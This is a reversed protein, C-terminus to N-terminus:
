HNKVSQSILHDDIWTKLNNIIENQQISTSKAVYLAKEVMENKGADLWYDNIHLFVLLSATAIRKNGNRFPHNKNLAYYLIAAKDVLTSYLEQNDFTAKPLNLASDLLSITHDQFPSIPDENTNFVAVALRHCIKEMLEIDLYHIQM